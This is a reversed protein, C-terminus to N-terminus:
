GALSSLKSETKKIEREFFEKKAGTASSALNKVNELYRQLKGIKESKM